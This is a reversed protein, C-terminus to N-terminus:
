LKQNPFSANQLHCPSEAGSVMSAPHPVENMDQLHEEGALIEREARLLLGVDEHEDEEYNVYM